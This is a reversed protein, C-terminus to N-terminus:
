GKRSDEYGFKEVWTQLLPLVPELQKAYRRWQGSGDANLGRRVQSASISRINRMQAVQAFEHFRDTWEIGVFTCIGRVERDFDRVLEENRCFLFPLPVKDRCIEGLTMVSNYFEAIAGLTFTEGSSANITFHRRFCSLVVDRPDRLVFLVKAKPFLTAILPLKITNMPLKDIFVKGMADVGLARVRQWYNRRERVLEDGCLSTLRDLAAPNALFKGAPRDLVNAEELTVVDHHAALVQELLTTGSRQFGVLFIHERVNENGTVADAPVPWREMDMRALYGIMERVISPMDLIPGAGPGVARGERNEAAYFEFAEETKDQGDLADALLGLVVSRLRPPIVEPNNLAARLHAEAETFLGNKIEAAALGAWAAIHKPALETARKYAKAAAAFDEHTELVWGMQFHTTALNPELALSADFVAMADKLRRLRALCVAIDNMALPDNPSLQRAALFNALADNYKGLEDLRMARAKYALPHNLGHALAKGALESARPLDGADIASAISQLLESDNM